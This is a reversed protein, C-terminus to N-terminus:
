RNKSEHSEEELKIIDLELRLKALRISVVLMPVTWKDIFTTKITISGVKM